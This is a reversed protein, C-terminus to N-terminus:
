YVYLSETTKVPSALLGSATTICSADHLGTPRTSIKCHFPRVLLLNDLLKPTMEYSVPSSGDLFFSSYHAFSIDYHFSCIRIHKRSFTHSGNHCKMQGDLYAKETNKIAIVLPLIPPNSETRLKIVYHYVLM